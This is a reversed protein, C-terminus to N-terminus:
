LKARYLSLLSCNKLAVANFKTFRHRYKHCLTYIQVNGPFESEM